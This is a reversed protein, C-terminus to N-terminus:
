RDLNGVLRSCIVEEEACDHLPITQWVIAGVPNNVSGLFNALHLHLCKVSGMNRIGGIGRKLVADRQWNELVMNEILKEKRQRTEEHAMMYQKFFEPEENLKQEFSKVMGKEELRGVERLLLPCTLWYLTPFPKGEFVPVSEICQPYGWKCKKVVRFPNMIDRGLQKQVIEKELRPSEM